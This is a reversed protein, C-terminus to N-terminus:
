KEIVEETITLLDKNTLDDFEYFDGNDMECGRLTVATVKHSEGNEDGDEYIDWSRENEIEVKGDRNMLYERIHHMLDGRMAYIAWTKVQEATKEDMVLQGHEVTDHYYDTDLFDGCQGNEDQEYINEGIVVKFDEDLHVEAYLSRITKLGDSEVCKRDKFTVIFTDDDLWDNAVPCVGKYQPIEIKKEM